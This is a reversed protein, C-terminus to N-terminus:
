LLEFGDDATQDLMAAAIRRTAAYFNDPLEIIEDITDGPKLHPASASRAHDASEYEAVHSVAEGSVTAQVEFIPM